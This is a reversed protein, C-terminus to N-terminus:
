RLVRSLDSLRKECLNVKPVLGARDGDSDSGKVAIAAPPLVSPHELSEHKLRDQLTFLNRCLPRFASKFPHGLFSNLIECAFFSVHKNCLWNTSYSTIYYIFGVTDSKIGKLCCDLFNPTFYSGLKCSFGDVVWSGLNTLRCLRSPVM